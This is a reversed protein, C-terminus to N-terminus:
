GSVEMVTLISPTSSRNEDAISSTRGWYSTGNVTRIVQLKYTIASTTAPSDLYIGAKSYQITEHTNGAGQACDIWCRQATGASDGQAIVTTNRLLRAYQFSNTASNGCCFTTMIFIKNSSSRPTITVNMDTWDVYSTSTTTFYTTLERTVVQIIGGGSAGAPLGGAPVISDVKLQSM